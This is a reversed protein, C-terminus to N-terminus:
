VEVHLLYCLIHQVINFIINTDIISFETLENTDLILKECERMPIGWQFGPPVAIDVGDGCPAGTFYLLTFYLLTFYLKNLTPKIFLFM